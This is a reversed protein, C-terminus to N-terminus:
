NKNKDHDRDHDKDHDGGHHMGTIGCLQCTKLACRPLPYQQCIANYPCTKTCSTSATLLEVTVADVTLSQTKVQHMFDDISKIVDEKTVNHITYVVKVANSTISGNTLDCETIQGDYAKQLCSVHGNTYKKWIPVFLTHFDGLVHKESVVTVSATADDADAWSTLATGWAVALVLTVRAFTGWPMVREKEYVALVGSVGHDGQGLLSGGGM